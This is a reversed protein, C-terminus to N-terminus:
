PEGVFYEWIAKLTVKRQKAHVRQKLSRSIMCKALCFRCKRITFAFGKMLSINKAIGKQKGGVKEKTKFRFGRVRKSLRPGSAGKANSRKDQRNTLVAKFM